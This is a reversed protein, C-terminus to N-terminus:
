STQVDKPKRNPMDIELEPHWHPSVYFSGDRDDTNYLEFPFLFSGRSKIEQSIPTSDSM